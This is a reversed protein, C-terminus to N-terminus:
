ASPKPFRQYLAWVSYVVALMFVVLAPVFWAASLHPPQLRNAEVVRWHVFALFAILAWGFRTMSAAIYDISAERREPALWYERHPLNIFRAPIRRLMARMSMMVGPVGVLMVLMLTLYGTRTTYGNAAGSGDFHSAVIPPLQLGTVVIFAAAAVLGALGPAASKM